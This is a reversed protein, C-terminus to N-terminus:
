SAKALSSTAEIQKQLGDVMARSASQDLFSLGAKEGRVWVILAENASGEWDITVVDDVIVPTGPAVDICVGTRSIDSVKTEFDTGAGTVCKIIGPGNPVQREARRRESKANTESIVAVLREQLQRVDKEIQETLGSIDSSGKAVAENEKSVKSMQEAVKDVNSSASQISQSIELTVSSQQSVSDSVADSRDTLETMQGAISQIREVAGKVEGQMVDVGSQIEELSHSTQNALSKVESAVVAFGKGAEGARAAEITANLALLNTQEAIDSIITVMDAIKNAAGTLGSLSESVNTAESSTNRILQRTADVQSTVESLSVNMEEAAAAISQSSQAASSSAQTASAVDGTVRDSGAILDNSSSRAKQSVQLLGSIMQTLELEVVDALEKLSASIANQQEAAAKEARIREQLDKQKQEEARTREREIKAAREIEQARRAEEGEKLSSQLATLNRAFLGFESANDQHPIAADYAGASLAEASAMLDGLPRRISESLVVGLVVLGGLVAFVLGAILVMTTTAASKADQSMSVLHAAYDKELGFLADIRKTAAAFWATAAADVPQNTRLSTAGADRLTQVALTESGNQIKKLATVFTAPASTNFLDFYANQQAVLAQQALVLDLSYIKANYGQVGISRERGSREKAELLALLAGGQSVIQPDESNFVSQSFLGILDTIVGTYYVAMEKASLTLNTVDGRVGVIEALASAIASGDQPARTLASQFASLAGDTLARQEALNQRFSSGGDSSIYGASNGREKQLEHVLASASQALEVAQVTEEAANRDKYATLVRPASMVFLAVSAAVVILFLRKRITVRNLFALM